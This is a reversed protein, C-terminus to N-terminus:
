ISSRKELKDNLLVEEVSNEVSRQITLPFLESSELENIANALEVAKNKWWQLDKM